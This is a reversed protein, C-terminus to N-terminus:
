KVMLDEKLSMYTEKNIEGRLKKEKTKLKSLKEIYNYIDNSIRELELYLKPDIKKKDKGIINNKLENGGRPVFFRKFYERINNKNDTLEEESLGSKESLLSINKHFGKRYRARKSM